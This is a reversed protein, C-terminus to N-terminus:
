KKEVKVIGNSVSGDSETLSCIRYSTFDSSITRLDPTVGAQGGAGGRPVHLFHQVRQHHDFQVPGQRRGQAAAAGGRGDWQPLVQGRQVECDLLELM